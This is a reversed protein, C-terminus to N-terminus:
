IEELTSKAIWGQKGEELLVEYWKSMKDIIEVKAGEHIVFLDTSTESPSSKVTVASDTIIAYQNNKNVLYQSLACLNALFTLILCFLGTYLSLKRHLTKSSYIYFTICTLMIIFSLLAILMWTSITTTNSLQKWWTIFFMESPPIVKDATKGRAFALNAKIDDDSPDFRLAREYNLICLAIKGQKYYCNGLNYYVEPSAGFQKTITEYIQSAQNYEGKAYLNNANEWLKEPTGNLTIEGQNAAYVCNACSFLIALALVTMKNRNFISKKNIRLRNEIQTITNIAMNYVNEMNQSEDGPAYRAFECDNLTKIFQDTLEQPVNNDTLKANINDKNLTAQPINLKDAIYGYLARMVEDYFNNKDAQTLLKSAVKMRKLAVKNAQHGRVIALNSHEERRKRWLIVVIAFILLAVIYAIVYTWFTSQACNSNHFSLGDKKIYRIDQALEKVNQQNNTYDSMSNNSKGGKKVNITYSETTITKYTRSSTDFYVFDLAPITYTGAHRPVAIYEFEKVGTLGKNTLEFKNNVKSDYTEFDKPFDIKPADILKLNGTGNLKVKLTIADNSYVDKSSIVSSISFTGVAGSFNKPKNPLPSVNINIAPAVIKKRVETYADLGNLMADIIDMNNNQHAITGDFTTPPITLKGTKQPFVLYQKWVLTSYYKGNIVEKNPIKNNSQPIEQIQFGDLAPTKNDLSTLQTSSNVYLKYTVLIAEQEYVNTSSATSTIYVDKGSPVQQPRESQNKKSPQSHNSYGKYNGNNVVQIKISQSKITKGNVVVSAPKVVITGAKEAMLTFTFTQTSTTKSTYKGNTIVVNSGSSSLVVPGYLVQLGSFDPYSVGSVNTSNISYQIRFEEGVEVMSPAQVRLALNDAMMHTVAFIILTFSILLKKM